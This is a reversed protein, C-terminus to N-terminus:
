FSVGYMGTISHNNYRKGFTYDYAVEFIFRDALKVKLSSGVTGYSGNFKASNTKYSDSYDVTTFDIQARSRGIVPVYGARVEPTWLSRANKCTLFDSGFTRNMSVMIPMALNSYSTRGSMLRNEPVGDQFVRENISDMRVHSFDLGFSPTIRTDNQLIWVYSAKVGASYVNDRYNDKYIGERDGLRLVEREMRNWSRSWGAYADLFFNGLNTGGYLAMHLTDAKNRFHYGDGKPTMRRADYGVALGIASSDGLLRSLGTAFGSVATSYGLSGDSFKKNDRMYFPADWMVWRKGPACMTTPCGVSSAGSEAVAAYAQGSVGLNARDQYHATQSYSYISPLTRRFERQVTISVGMVDAYAEGALTNAEDIAYTRQQQIERGNNTLYDLANAGGATMLVAAIVVAIGLKKM